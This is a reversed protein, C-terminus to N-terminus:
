ETVESMEQTLAGSLQADDAEREAPFVEEQCEPSLCIFGREGDAHWTIDPRVAPESQGMEAHATEIEHELWQEDNMEGVEGALRVRGRLVRTRPGDPVLWLRRDYNRWSAFRFRTWGRARLTLM